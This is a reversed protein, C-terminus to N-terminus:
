VLPSIAYRIDYDATKKHIVVPNQNATNVNIDGSFLQAIDLFIPRLKLDIDDGTYDTVAIHKTASAREKGDYLYSGVTMNIINKNKDSVMKIFDTSLMKLTNRVNILDNTNVNFITGLVGKKTIVKGTEDIKLLDSADNEPKSIQSFPLENNEGEITIKTEDSVLRLDSDGSFTTGPNFYDIMSSDFVAKGPEVVALGTYEANIIYTSFATAKMRVTKDCEVTFSNFISEGNAKCCFLKMMEYFKSTKGKLEM